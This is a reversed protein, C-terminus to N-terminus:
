GHAFQEVGLVLIDGQNCVSQDVVDADVDRLDATQAHRALHGGQALEESHLGGPVTGPVARRYAVGGTKCQLQGAIVKADVFAVDKWRFRALYEGARRLGAVTVHIRILRRSESDVHILLQGRLEGERGTTGKVVTPSRCAAAVSRHDTRLQNSNAASERLGPE